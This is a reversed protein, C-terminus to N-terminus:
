ILFPSFGFWFVKLNRMESEDRSLLIGMEDLLLFFIGRGQELEGPPLCLSRPRTHALGADVKSVHSHQAEQDPAEQSHSVCELM